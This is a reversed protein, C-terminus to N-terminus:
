IFYPSNKIKSSVQKNNLNLQNFKSCLESFKLVSPIRIAGSWNWYYFCMYYSVKEVDRKNLVNCDNHLITFRTPTATGQNVFQPQIYFEEYGSTTVVSDVCLGSGPNNFNSNNNNCEFFKLDVKKNVITFVFQPPKFIKYKNKDEEPMRQFYDILYKKLPEIENEIVSKFLQQNVGSRYIVLLSPLKNFQNFLKAIFNNIPYESYNSSNNSRTSNNINESSSKNINISKYINDTFIKNHYRDLTSCFSYKVDNKNSKFCEIGIIASPQLFCSNISSLEIRYLSGKTKVIMQNLVGSVSSLNGGRHKQIHLCQNPVKINTFFLTKIDKYIKPSNNHLMTLVIDFTRLEDKLSLIYNIWNDKRDLYCVKPYMLEIGLKESASRMSNLIREVDHKNGDSIVMWKNFSNADIAKESRFKGNNIDVVKNKYSLKPPELNNGDFSVFNNDFEIGWKDKIDKSSLSNSNNNSSNFYNIFDNIEKMKHEPRTRTKNINKKFSDDEKIEDDIGSLVCLEPILYNETLANNKIKKFILLPQTKDKIIKGYTDKFYDTLSKRIITQTNSKDRIDIYVSNPNQNFVVDDIKYLKKNAYNSIVSNGIFYEKIKDPYKLYNIKDLCSMKSIIKNKTSIRLMPVGTESINVATSFGPLLSINNLSQERQFDFYNERNFRILTKNAHLISSIIKELFQKSRLNNSNDFMLSGKTNFMSVEYEKDDINVKTSLVSNSDIVTLNKTSYIVSDIHFFFNLIEILNPRIKKVIDYIIKSNPPLEPNIKLHYLHIQADKKNIFIKKYNCILRVKDRPGRNVFQNYNNNNSTNYGDSTNSKYNPKDITKNYYNNNPKYNKNKYNNYNENYHNYKEM